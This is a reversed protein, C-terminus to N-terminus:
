PESGSVSASSPSQKKIVLINNNHQKKNVEEIMKVNGSISHVPPIGMQLLYTVKM